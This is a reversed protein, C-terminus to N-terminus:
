RGYRRAPATKLYNGLTATTPNPPLVVPDRAPPGGRGRGGGRAPPGGRGGCTADMNEYPSTTVGGARPVRPMGAYMVGFAANLNGQLYPNIHNKEKRATSNIEFYLKAPNIVTTKLIFERLLFLKRIQADIETRTYPAITTGPPMESMTSRIRSLIDAGRQMQVLMQYEHDPDSECPPRARRGGTCVGKADLAFRYEHRHWLRDLSCFIAQRAYRFGCEIFTRRTDNNTARNHLVELARVQMQWMQNPLYCPTEEKSKKKHVYGVDRFLAYIARQEVPSTLFSTNKRQTATNKVVM